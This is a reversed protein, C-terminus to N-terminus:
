SDCLVINNVPVTPVSKEPSEVCVCAYTYASAYKYPVRSFFKYILKQPVEIQKHKSYYRM